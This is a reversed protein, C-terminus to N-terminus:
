GDLQNAWPLGTIGGNQEDLLMQEFNLMPPV